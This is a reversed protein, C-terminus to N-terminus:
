KSKIFRLFGIIGSVIQCIERSLCVFIVYMMALITNGIWFVLALHFEELNQEAHHKLLITSQLIEVLIVLYFNVRLIKYRKSTKNTHNILQASELDFSIGSGGLKQCVNLFGLFNYFRKSLM